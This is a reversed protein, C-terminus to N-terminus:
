YNFDLGVYGGHLLFSDDADVYRSSALSAYDSAFQDTASAVGTLGFLRYGGRFTFANTLRIGLGLDLEGLTSLVTDSDETLIFDTPTVTRFALASNTGIRQRYKVHNGYLGFKGGILLSVRRHLCYSLRGGFQYGYLNNETDIDYYLDNAQYGVTGDINAALQFEDEAQFWRFGHSTSVQVRGCLNPIFPGGFRGYGNCRGLSRLWGNSCGNIAAARRAGMIGFSNLAVEIGQFRMDRRVRYGAAGDFHSYVTALGTGPDVSINNWSAFAPRYDGAVPPLLLNSEVSPNWLMYGVSLGWQNCHLYRGGYVEFGTTASPRVANTNLQSTGTADAVILNRYSNNEKTLFLLTGGGFWKCLPLRCAVDQMCADGCATGVMPDSIMGTALPTTEPMPAPAPMGAQDPLPEPAASDPLPMPEPAPDLSPAPLEAAEQVADDLQAVLYSDTASRNFNNWKAPARYSEVSTQATAVTCSLALAASVSRLIDIRM